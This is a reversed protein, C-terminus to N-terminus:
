QMAGNTATETAKTRRRRRTPVKGAELAEMKALLKDIEEQTSIREMLITISEIAKKGQEVAPVQEVEDIITKLETKINLSMTRAGQRYGGV